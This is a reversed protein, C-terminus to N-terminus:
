FEAYEASEALAPECFMRHHQGRVDELSYGMADLFQRSATLVTGDVALEVVAQTSRITDVIAHLELQEGTPQASSSPPM